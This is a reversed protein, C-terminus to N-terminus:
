VLSPSKPTPKVGINGSAEWGRVLDSAAEWSRIGYPAKSLSRRISDGGLVGQGWIPCRNKCGKTGRSDRTKGHFRCEPTHRRYITLM